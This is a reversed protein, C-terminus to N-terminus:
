RNIGLLATRIRCIGLPLALEFSSGGQVGPDVFEGSGHDLPRIPSRVLLSRPDTVTAIDGHVSRCTNNQVSAKALVVGSSLERTGQGRRWNKGIIYM